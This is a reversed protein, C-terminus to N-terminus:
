GATLGAGGNTLAEGAGGVLVWSDPLGHYPGAGGNCLVAVVEAGNSRPARNGPLSDQEAMPSHRVPGRGGAGM